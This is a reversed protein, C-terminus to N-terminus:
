TRVNAILFANNVARRYAIAALNVLRNNNAVLSPKLAIQVVHWGTAIRPAIRASIIGCARTYAYGGRFAAGFIATKVIPGRCHIQWVRAVATRACALYLRLMAAKARFTEM